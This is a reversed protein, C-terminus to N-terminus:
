KSKFHSLICAFLGQIKLLYKELEWTLNDGQLKNEDKMVSLELLLLRRSDCIFRYDSETIYAPHYEKILEDTVEYLRKACCYFNSANPPMLHGNARERGYTAADLEDLIRSIEQLTQEETHKM